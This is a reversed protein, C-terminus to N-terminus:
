SRFSPHQRPAKTEIPPRRSELYTKHFSQLVEREPLTLHTKAIDGAGWGFLLTNLDHEMKSIDLFLAEIEACTATYIRLARQERINIYLTKGEDLPGGGWIVGHTLRNRHQALIMARSVVDCIRKVLVPSRAFAIRASRKMLRARKRFASPIKLEEAAVVPSARLDALHDDFWHEFAGWRTVVNGIAHVDAPNFLM